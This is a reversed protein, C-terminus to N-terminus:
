AKGLHVKLVTGGVDCGNFMGVCKQAEAATAYSVLAKGGGIMKANKVDGAQKLNEKFEDITIFDPINQIVCTTGLDKAPQNWGMGGGGGGGQWGGGQCGGGQRGGGQCGFNGGCGGCGGRGGGKGKMMMAMMMPNMGDMQNMGGQMMSNMGMGMGDMGMDDMGMNSNGGGWGKGKGGKSKGGRGGGGGFGGGSSSSTGDSTEKKTWVDTALQSGGMTTGSLSALANQAAASDKFLLVGRGQGMVECLGPKHGAESCHLELEKWTAGDPIGEVYVKKDDDNQKIKSMTDRMTGKGGGKGMGWSGWSRGGKSGGDPKQDSKEKKTWVDTAITSDGMTTANMASIADTAAAVDKFVLVGRGGKTVECLASKHGASAFHKQLARWDAGDPLGEVYVKKDDDAETIKAMTDQSSGWKGGGKGKGMMSMMIAQMEQMNM